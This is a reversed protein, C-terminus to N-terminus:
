HGQIFSSATTASGSRAERERRVSILVEGLARMQTELRADISGNASRLVAGGLTVAVDPVYTWDGATGDDVCMVKADDPHLHISLEGRLSHAAILQQIMERIVQPKVVEFGLVKCIAEHAVSVLDDESEALMRESEARCAALIGDLRMRGEEFAQTAQAHSRDSAEQAERAREQVAQAGRRLGEQLGQQLGLEQAQQRAAESASRVAEENAAAAEALGQARGLALGAAMGHEYDRPMAPEQPVATLRVPRTLAHPQASLEIDRLVTAAPSCSALSIELVRNM